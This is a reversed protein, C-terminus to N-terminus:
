QEIDNKFYMFFLYKMISLKTQKKPFKFFHQPILQCDQTLEYFTSLSIQTSAQKEDVLKAICASPMKRPIETIFTVDRGGFGNTLPERLM